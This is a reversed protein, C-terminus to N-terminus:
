EVGDKPGPVTHYQDARKGIQTSFVISSSCSMISSPAYSLCPPFLLTARHYTLASYMLFSFHICSFHSIFFARVRYSLEEKGDDNEEKKMM